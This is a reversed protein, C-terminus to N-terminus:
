RKEEYPHCSKLGRMDVIIPKCLKQPLLLEDGLYVRPREVFAGNPVHVFRRM